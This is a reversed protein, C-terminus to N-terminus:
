QKAITLLKKYDYLEFDGLMKTQRVDNVGCVNVPHYFCKKQRKLVSHSDSLL